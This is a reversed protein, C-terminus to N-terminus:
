AGQPWIRGNYSIRYTTGDSDSARGEPWTSAGEGSADRLAAYHAAAQEVSEHKSSRRGIKLKVM